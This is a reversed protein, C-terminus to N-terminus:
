WASKPVCCMQDSTIAKDRLAKPLYECRAIVGGSNIDKLFESIKPGIDMGFAYDSVYLVNIPQRGRQFLFYAAGDVVLRADGDKINCQGALAPLESRREDSLFVPTSLPQGAIVYRDMM